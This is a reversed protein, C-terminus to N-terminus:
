HAPTFSQSSSSQMTKSNPIESYLKNLNKESTCSNMCAGDTCLMMVDHEEHHLEKAHVPMVLITALVVSSFLTIL